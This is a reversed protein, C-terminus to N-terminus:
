TPTFFFLLSMNFERQCSTVDRILFVLIDGGWMYLLDISEEENVLDVKM